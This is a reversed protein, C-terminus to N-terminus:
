RGLPQWPGQPIRPPSGAGSGDSRGAASREESDRQEERAIDPFAVTAIATGIGGAVFGIVVSLWWEGWAAQAVALAAVALVFPTGFFGLRRGKRPDTLLDPLARGFVYLAMFVVFVVLAWSSTAGHAIFAGAVAAVIGLLGFLNRIAMVRQEDTVASVEDIGLVLEVTHRLGGLAM